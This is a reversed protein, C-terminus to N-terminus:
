NIWHIVANFGIKCSKGFMNHITETNSSLPLPNNGSRQLLDDSKDGNYSGLLGSTLGRYTDPLSVLIQSLMGNRGQAQIVAGDSFVVTITSDGAYSVTVNNLQWTKLVEFSISNGNVLVAVTVAADSVTELQITDSSEQKAVIASFVTALSEGGNQNVATTMRGQLTFLSNSTKLLDFEGRGNFTYQYHDLTVIHPDGYLLGLIYNLFYLAKDM